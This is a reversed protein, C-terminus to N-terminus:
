SKVNLLNGRGDAYERLKDLSDTLGAPKTIGLSQRIKLISDIATQIQEKQRTQATAASGSSLLDNLTRGKQGRLTELDAVLQAAKRVLNESNTRDLSIKYPAASFLTNQVLPIRGSYSTNQELMGWKLM